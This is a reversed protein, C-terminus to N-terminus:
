FDVGAKVILYRGPLPYANFNTGTPSAAAYDYAGEKNEANHLIASIYVGNPKNSQWTLAINMWRYDPINEGVHNDADNDYHKEGVYRESLSLLLRSTIQWDFRAYGTLNPVLPVDHGDLPGEAFHAEQYSGAITLHLKETLEWYSNLSVGSRETDDLNYNSFTMADYAIENSYDGSWATLTSYQVGNHWSAGLTYVKGTQIQKPGAWYRLEDVSAYRAVKAFLSVKDSLAHRIGASWMGVQPSEDKPLNVAANGDLKLWEHRAGLTLWTNDLLAISNQGYVAQVNREYREHSTAWPSTSDAHYRTRQYDIGVTWRNALGFADFHGNLRPSVSLSRATKGGLSTGYKYFGSSQERKMFGTDLHLTINDTLQMGMGPLIRVTKGEAWNFPTDAATYTTKLQSDSIAGPLGTNQKGALITMYYATEDTAYRLSGFAHSQKTANNDRYGDSLLRSLSLMGDVNGVNFSGQLAGGRTDFEGVTAEIRGGNEYHDRTIVNVVGGAAGSGYLVSGSGPLVEIREIAELPISSLNVSSNDVHNLRRGNLLILTNHGATEGFGTMDVSSKVGSLGTGYYSSINIGGISRLADALNTAPMSDLQQRDIVVKGVPLVDANAATRSASVEVEPLQKTTQADKAAIASNAAGMTLIFSLSVALPRKTFRKM